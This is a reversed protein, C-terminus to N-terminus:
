FPSPLPLPKGTIARFGALRVRPRDQYSVLPMMGCEILALVQTETMYVEACPTMVWESGDKYTHAPLGDLNLNDGDARVLVALCALAANGWLYHEHVPVAPMEEFEFSEIASTRVGYPLRLLLRPLALGVYSAEPIERLVDLATAIGPSGQALYPVKADGAVLAVRALLEVANEDFSHLGIVATWRRSHLLAHLRTARLNDSVLDLALDEQSYQVIYIRAAADDMERVAFDLGRWASELTQFRPHHLLANIREAHGKTDQKKQPAASHARALQKVYDEFADGGGSAIQELLSTPKLLTELDAQPTAPERRPEPESGPTGMQLREFLRDPHFDELERMRMGGASVQFISLVDNLNDRDVVQPEAPRGGFDGLVLYRAPGGDPDAIRTRRPAVDLEIM